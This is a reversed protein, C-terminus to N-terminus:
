IPQFIEPQDPIKRGDAHSPLCHDDESTLQMGTAQDPDTQENDAELILSSLTESFKIGSNYLEM